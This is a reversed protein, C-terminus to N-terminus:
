LCPTKVKANGLCGNVSPFVMRKTAVAFISHVRIRKSLGTLVAKYLADTLTSAEVVVGMREPGGAAGRQGVFPM